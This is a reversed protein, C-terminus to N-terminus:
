SAPAAPKLPTGERIEDSGRLLIEDGANLPGFVEVLNEVPAGRAVNVWEAKGDRVRIVFTRETTTVISSPPVLLSPGKKHVPWLVESYMGPALMAQPNSVDLEVPMTRTKSDMSDPVRAVIGTFTEGPYAPVRFPVHAGRVIGGVQAEPVAVVLRLRSNQELRFLPMSSGAGPGVLAGPHVDRETVIGSFPATVRLYGEFEKLSAVAQQAAKISDEQAQVFSRAADVEKEALILENGAIAGPTQSATKLKEFTSQAAVLKAEAEARQSQISQVKAEAEARQSILEPAVLSALLQGEQVVSGRDVEVKDVFATVKAHIAVSLYPTFEGPLKVTREVPKSVVKAVDVAQQAWAWSSLLCISLLNKVCSKLLKM